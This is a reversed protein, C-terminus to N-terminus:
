CEFRRVWDRELLRLVALGFLAAACVVGCLSTLLGLRPVVGSGCGDEAFCVCRVSVLCARMRAISRAGLPTLMSAMICAVPHCCCETRPKRAPTTRLFSPKVTCDSFVSPSRMYRM